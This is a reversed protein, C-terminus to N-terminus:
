YAVFCKILNIIHLVTVNILSNLDNFLISFIYRKYENTLNRNHRPDPYQNANPNPDAKCWFSAFQEHAIKFIRLANQLNRLSM